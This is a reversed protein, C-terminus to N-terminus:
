TPSKDLSDQHYVVTHPHVGLAYVRRHLQAAGLLVRRPGQTVEPHSELRGGETLGRGEGNQRSGGTLCRLPSAHAPLTLTASKFALYEGILLYRGGQVNPPGSEFRGM